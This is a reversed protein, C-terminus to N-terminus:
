VYNLPCANKLCNVILEWECYFPAYGPMSVTALKETPTLIGRYIKRKFLVKIEPLEKKVKEVTWDLKSLDYAKKAEEVTMAIVAVGDLTEPFDCEKRLVVQLAYEDGCNIVGTSFVDAHLINILKFQAEKAQERTM